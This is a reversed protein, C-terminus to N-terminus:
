QMSHFNEFGDFPTQLDPIAQNEHDHQRAEAKGGILELASPQESANVIFQMAANPNQGICEVTRWRARWIGTFLRKVSRRRALKRIVARRRYRLLVSWQWFKM